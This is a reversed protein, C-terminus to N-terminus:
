SPYRRMRSDRALSSSRRFYSLWSNSSRMTPFSRAGPPVMRLSAAGGEGKETSPLSGSWCFSTRPTKLLSMLLHTLDHLAATGRGDSGKLTARSDVLRSAQHRQSVRRQIRENKGKAQGGGEEVGNHDVQKAPPVMLQKVCVCVCVCLRGLHNKECLYM